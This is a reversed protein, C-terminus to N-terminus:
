KKRTGKGSEANQGSGPQSVHQFDRLTTQLVALVEPTLGVRRSSSIWKAMFTEARQQTQPDKELAARTAASPEGLAAAAKSLTEIERNLKMLKPKATEATAKDTATELVTVFEELKTLLRDGATKFDATTPPSKAGAEQAPLSGMVLSLLMIPLFFKM